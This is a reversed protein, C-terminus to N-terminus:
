SVHTEERKRKKENSNCTSKPGPRYSVISYPIYELRKDGKEKKESGVKGDNESGVGSAGIRERIRAGGCM